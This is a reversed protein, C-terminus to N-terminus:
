KLFPLEKKPFINSETKEPSQGFAVVGGDDVQANLAPQM